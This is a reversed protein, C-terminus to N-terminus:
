GRLTLSEADCTNPACISCGLQTGFAASIAVIQLFYMSIGSCSLCMGLSGLVTSTSHVVEELHITVDTEDWGGLVEKSRQKKKSGSGNSFYDDTVQVFETLAPSSIWCWISM